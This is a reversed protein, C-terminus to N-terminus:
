STTGADAGGGPDEGVAIRGSNIAALLAAHDRETQDAYAVGFAAIADAVAGDDRLYGAIASPEGSRAHGRALAWGCLTGWQAVDDISM